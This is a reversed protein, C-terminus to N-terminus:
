KAVQRDIRIKTKDLNSSEINYSIPKVIDILLGKKTELSCKEMEIKCEECYIQPPVINNEIKSGKIHLESFEFACIGKKNNKINCRNINLLSAKQCYIGCFGEKIDTNELNASSSNLYIQIPEEDGVTNKEISSNKLELTSNDELYIGGSNSKIVCRNLNVRSDARVFLGVGSECGEITTELFEGTSSEMIIHNSSFEKSGNNLLQSREIRIKGNSSYIAYGCNNEMRSDKILVMSRETEILPARNDIFVCNEITISSNELSLLSVFSSEAGNKEFYCNLFTCSSNEFSAIFGDFGIFKCNTFKIKSHSVDINSGRFVTDRLDLNKNYIVFPEKLYLNKM